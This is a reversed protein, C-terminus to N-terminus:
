GVGVFTMITVRTFLLTEKALGGKAGVPTFLATRPRAHVRRWAKRDPYHEWMDGLVNGRTNPAHGGGKDSGNAITAPM